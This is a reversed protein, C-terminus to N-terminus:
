LVPFDRTRFRKCGGGGGGGCVCMSVPYFRKADGEFLESVTGLWSLCCVVRGAM